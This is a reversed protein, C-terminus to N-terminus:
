QGNYNSATAILKQNINQWSKASMWSVKTWRGTLREGVDSQGKNLM